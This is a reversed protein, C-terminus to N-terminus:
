VIKGEFDAPFHTRMSAHKEHDVLLTEDILKKLAAVKEKCKEFERTSITNPSTDRSGDLNIPVYFCAQKLKDLKLSEAKELAATVEDETPPAGMFNPNKLLKVSKNQAEFARLQVQVLEAIASSFKQKKDHNFLAQRAPEDWKQDRELVLLMLAKGYEEYALILLATARAVRGHEWLLFADEHLANGNEQAAYAAGILRVRRRHDLSGNAKM